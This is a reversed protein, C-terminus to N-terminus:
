AGTTGGLLSRLKSLLALGRDRLSKPNDTPIDRIKAGFMMSYLAYGSLDKEAFAAPKRFKAFVATRKRVHEELAVTECDSFIQAVDEKEFRWFDYPHDHSPWDSPVAILLIGGPKCLNKMNSVATKWDRVHELVCTSIVLDFSEKGFRGLLKEAPCVVDVGPGEAIDVGIYEAPELLEVIYRLSGNVDYSGVELVRKGAVEQKKINKAGWRICDINCM